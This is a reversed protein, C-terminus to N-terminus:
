ASWAMKGYLIYSFRWVESTQIEFDRLQFDYFKASYYVIGDDIINLVKTGTAGLKCLM